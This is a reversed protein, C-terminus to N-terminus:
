NFKRNSLAAAMSAWAFLETLSMAKIVPLPQHMVHMVLACASAIRIV